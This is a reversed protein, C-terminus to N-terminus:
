WSSAAFKRLLVRLFRVVDPSRCAHEQTQMFLCGDATIGSIASLHDRTLPVRLVPTQRRPAWTHVALPLLYFGSQDVWVVTRGENAGKKRAGALAGAVVGPHRVRQAAHCASSSTPREPPCCALLPQRPCPPLHRWLHAPDGGRDAQMDLSARPLRVSRRGAGLAGAAPCTARCHAAATLRTGPPMATGGGGARAGAQDVSQRRWADSGHRRRHGATELGATEAGLRAAATSRALRAASGEDEHRWRLM